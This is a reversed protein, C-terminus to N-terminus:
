AKPHAKQYAEKLQEINNHTYMQTSALSGHGLLEKIANIAAGHHTLHTAFTHRLIHPSKKNITTVLSLYHHVALYVYKPYLQKGNELVFVYKNNAQLLQTKKATCYSQLASVLKDNIPIVREKNGKGLVKILQKSFDLQTEKLAVLEASRMGTDYFVQLLLRDTTGKWTDPFPLYRFMNAMDKEQVFVPLQKGIKPAVVLTMPSTTIIGVRLQHKFFSKLSSLKRNISKSTIGKEKLSALWSRIFHHTISSIDTSPFQDNLYTFFQQLDQQYAIVTHYSYRKEFKLYDLFSQVLPQIITTTPM